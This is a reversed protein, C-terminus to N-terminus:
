PSYPGQLRPFPKTPTTEDSSSRGNDSNVATWGSIPTDSFGLGARDVEEGVVSRYFLFSQKRGKIRAYGELTLAVIEPMHLLEEYILLLVCKIRSGQLDDPLRELFADLTLRTAIPLDIPPDEVTKLYRIASQVCARGQTLQMNAHNIAALIIGATKKRIASGPITPDLRSKIFELVTTQEAPLASLAHSECWDVFMVWYQRYNIITRAALRDTKWAFGGPIFLADLNRADTVGRAIRPGDDFTPDLAPPSQASSDESNRRTM